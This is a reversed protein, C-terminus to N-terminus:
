GFVNFDFMVYEDLVFFGGAIEHNEPHCEVNNLPEVEDSIVKRQHPGLVNMMELFQDIIETLKFPSHALDIYLSRRHLKGLDSIM